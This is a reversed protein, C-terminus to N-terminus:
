GVSLGSGLGRQDFLQDGNWDGQTWDAPGNLYKGAAFIAVLDRSGFVGDGTM